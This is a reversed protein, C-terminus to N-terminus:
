KVPRKPTLPSAPRPVTPKAAALTYSIKEVRSNGAADRIRFDITHRGAPLKKADLHATEAPSDWIGDECAAGMWEGGDVRYDAGTLYSLADVCPIIVPLGQADRQIANRRVTPPTNDVVFWDSVKETSLPESPNSRGDSVAVRVRYRGDPLGRTNWEAETADGEEAAVELDADEEAGPKAAAPDAPPPLTAATGPAAPDPLAEPGAARASAGRVGPKTRGGAGAKRRSAGRKRPASKPVPVVKAPPKAPTVAEEPDGENGGERLMAELSTTKSETDIRTWTTTGERQYSVEADLRDKDPDAATWRISKRGSWLADRAPAAVTVEPARNRTMYFLEVSRLTTPGQTGPALLARYQVYQGVPSKSPQGPVTQAESWDSWTADPFATSGTRTQLKVTGAEPSGNWRVVGWRAVSGANYAPSVYSGSEAAAAPIRYVRSPGATTAYLSGYADRSLSLAYSTESDFLMAATKDPAIRYLKGGGMAAYLTGDAEAILGMVHRDTSQYWVQAAGDPAVKIIAARPSCGVYLNGNGDVALSQVAANPVEYVPQVKGDATVRYVKGKPYTGVYIGDNPDLALATLHRDPATFIVSAAGEPTVRYLRGMSGTAAYVNGARDCQLAWISEGELRCLLKATGDPAIRTIRGSPLTGVYLNDQADTCLSQVATDDTKFFSTVTGQADIKLVTGDLWTGVYVNGRSDATQGWLFCDASDHLKVAQPALVMEGASTVLVNTTKGKAFEAQTAQKWVAPARAVNKGPASGGGSGSAADQIGIQDLDKQSLDELESWSPAKPPGEPFAAASRPTLHQTNRTSIWTDPQEVAPPAEEGVGLAWRRLGLAERGATLRRAMAALSSEDDGDDAGDDAGPGDGSSFRYLEEFLSGIGSLGPVASPIPTGGVKDREDTEVQLTLIQSGSLTWQTPIVQRQHGRMPRVGSPNVSLLVELLSNPLNPLEQGSAAVGAVPLTMEIVLDSNRERDVITTLLQPLTKPQPKQVGLWGLSRSASQGGAVGIQVRGAPINTPITLDLERTEKPKNFPQIVVGVKVTEGPKVRKRDAYVREIAAVNRAQTVEVSVRINEVPVPGFKNNELTDLVELLEGMPFAAFPDAFLAEFASSRAGTSFTNERRMPPLGRATIEITSRTTGEEPPAVSAIANMLSSYILMSTMQKHKVARIKYDKRVGREVDRIAFEAPVLTPMPGIEGGISWNRDQSVRGVMQIPSGLKFSVQQSSIIGHIYATTMPVDVAGLGFMPHGFAIVHNGKVYTVTGIATMDVDGSVLQAGVAAGPELKVPQPVDVRGPGAMTVLDYRSLKQQLYQLARGGMGSVFLPTAVPTMVLTGPAAGTAEGATPVVNVRTIPKGAIVLPKGVPQLSGASTAPPTASGPSYAELMQHIPTVGAVPERAFPWAFALAGIIKGGIYIPSGSMGASVGTKQKVVPGDDIRILIMDGGFDIKKLVGLVTIHFTEIKTGAFVSRGTGRMGPKVQDVTLAEDPGLLTEARVVGPLVSLALCTLALLYLGLM